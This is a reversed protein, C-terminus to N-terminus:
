SIGSGGPRLVCRDRSPGVRDPLVVTSIAEFEIRISKCSIRSELASTQAQIKTLIHTAIPRDTQTNPRPHQGITEFKIWQLLRQFLTSDLSQLVIEVIGLRSIINRYFLFPYSLIFCFLFVYYFNEFIFSKISCFLVCLFLNSYFLVYYFLISYFTYFLFSYFQFYSFPISYFLFSCFSFFHFSLFSYLLISYSLISHFLHISLIITSKYTDIHTDTYM